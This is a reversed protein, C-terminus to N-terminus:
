TNRNANSPIAVTVALEQVAPVYRSAAVSEHVDQAAPVYLAMTPAVSVEV